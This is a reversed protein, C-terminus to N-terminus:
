KYGIIKTYTSSLGNSWIRITTDDVWYSRINNGGIVYYINFIKGTLQSWEPGGTSYTLYIDTPIFTTNYNGSTDTATESVMFLLFRYNKFSDNLTKPGDTNQTWDLLVRKTTGIGNIISKIKEWFYTLGTKDLYTKNAM